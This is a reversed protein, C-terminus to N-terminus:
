RADTDRLLKVRLLAAVTIADTIGGDLCMELAEDFPVVRRVLQETGEPEPEGVTLGTALWIIALEDTVSNSLDLRLIERWDRAELGAEERLERQIGLLPDIAPDGGGQPLEWSYRDLPYRWQGILHVRDEADLAVVGLAVAKFHVTGYIGPNGDPGLVDHHVVTIWPNDYRVESALTRWPNQVTV